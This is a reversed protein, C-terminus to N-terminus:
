QTMVLWVVSWPVCFFKFFFMFEDILIMTSQNTPKEGVGHSALFVGTWHELNESNWTECETFNLNNKAHTIWFFYEHDKRLDKIIIFQYKVM